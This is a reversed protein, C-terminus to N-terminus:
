CCFTFVAIVIITIVNVAFRVNKHRVGTNCVNKLRINEIVDVENFYSCLWRYRVNKQIVVTNRVNKLRVANFSCEKM